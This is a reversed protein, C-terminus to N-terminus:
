LMELLSPMVWTPSRSFDSVVKTQRPLRQFRGRNIDYVCIDHGDKKLFEVYGWDKASISTTGEAELVIQQVSLRPMTGQCFFALDGVSDIKGWRYGEEEWNVLKFVDVRHYEEDPDDDLVGMYSHVM